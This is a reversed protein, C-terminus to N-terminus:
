ILGLEITSRPYLLRSLLANCRPRHRQLLGLRRLLPDTHHLLALNHILQALNHRPIIGLLQIRLDPLSLHTITKVM